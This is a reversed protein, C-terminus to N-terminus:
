GRLIKQLEGDEIIDKLQEKIKKMARQHRFWCTSQAVELYESTQAWNLNKSYKCDLIEAEEKNVLGTLYTWGSSNYEIFENDFEFNEHIYLTNEEQLTIDGLYKFGKSRAEKEDDECNKRPRNPLNFIHGHIRQFEIGYYDLCSKFYKEPDLIKNEKDKRSLLIEHIKVAIAQKIDEVSYRNPIRYKSAVKTILKKHKEFFEEIFDKIENETM